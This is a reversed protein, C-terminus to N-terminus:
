EPAGVEKYHYVVVDINTDRFARELAPRVDNWDLCDLGCGILPMALKTVKHQLCLTRLSQIALIMQYLAPKQRSLAKTIMYYIYRQGKKLFAVQGVKKGQSKLEEVCGFDKRRVHFVCFILELYFFVFNFLM